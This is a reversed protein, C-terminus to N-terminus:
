SGRKDYGNAEATHGDADAEALSFQYLALKSSCSIDLYPIRPERSSSVRM